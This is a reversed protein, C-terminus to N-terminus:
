KLTIHVFILLIVNVAVQWCGYVICEIRLKHLLIITTVFTHNWIAAGNCGTSLFFSDTHMLQLWNCLQPSRWWWRMWKLKIYNLKNACTMKTDIFDLIFIIEYFFHQPGEVHASISFKCMMSKWWENNIIRLHM